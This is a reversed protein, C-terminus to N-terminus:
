KAVAASHRTLQEKINCVPLPPFLARVQAGVNPFFKREYTRHGSVPSKSRPSPCCSVKPGSGTALSVQQYVSNAPHNMLVTGEKYDLKGDM